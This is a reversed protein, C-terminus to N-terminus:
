EDAKSSDDLNFDELIQKAFDAVLPQSTNEAAKKLFTESEEDYIVHDVAGKLMEKDAEASKSNTLIDFVMRLGQAGENLMSKLALHSFKDRKEVQEQLYPLVEPNPVFEGLGIGLSYYGDPDGKEITQKYLVEAALRSGQGTVAAIASEQVLENQSKFEEALFNVVSDDGIALELSEAFIGAQEKNPANEIAQVITKVNDVVGSIALIEGFYAREDDTSAADVLQNSLTKYFEGCWSCNGLQVFRELTIDDYDKAGAKVAALAEEATKYVEIAPRVDEDADEDEADTPGNKDDSAPSSLSGHAGETSTTNAATTQSGAATTGGSPTVTSKSHMYYWAGAGIIIVLLIPLLKKM